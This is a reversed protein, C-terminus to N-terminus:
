FLEIKLIGTIIWMGLHPFVVTCYGLWWWRKGFRQKERALCQMSLEKKDEGQDGVSCCLGLSGMASAPLRLCM